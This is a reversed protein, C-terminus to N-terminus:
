LRRDLELCAQAAALTPFSGLKRYGPKHEATEPSQFVVYLGDEVTIIETLDDSKFPSM